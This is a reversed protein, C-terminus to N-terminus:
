NIFTEDLRRFQLSVVFQSLTNEAAYSRDSPSINSPFCERMICEYVIQNKINYQTIKIDKKITDFYNLRGTVPDMINSVWESFYKREEMKESEYFSLTCETFTKGSPVFTPVGIGYKRHSAMGVNLGPITVQSCNFTVNRPADPVITAGYNGVISITYRNPKTFYSQNVHSIIDNIGTM